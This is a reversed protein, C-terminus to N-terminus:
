HEDGSKSMLKNISVLSILFRWPLIINKHNQRQPSYISKLYFVTGALTSSLKITKWLTRM